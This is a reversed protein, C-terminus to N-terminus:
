RAARNATAARLQIAIAEDKTQADAVHRHDLADAAVVVFLRHRRHAGIEVADGLALGARVVPRERDGRKPRQHQLQRGAVGAARQRVVGRRLVSRLRCADESGALPQDGLLLNRQFGIRRLRAREPPLLQRAVHHEVIVAVVPQADAKGFSFQRVASGVPEDVRHHQPAVGGLHALAQARMECAPAVCTQMWGTCSSPSVAARSRIRVSSALVQPAVGHQGDRFASRDGPGRHGIHQRAAAAAPQHLESVPAGLRRHKEAALRADDIECQGVRQIGPDAPDADRRLVLRVAQDAM